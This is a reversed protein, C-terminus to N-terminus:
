DDLDSALLAGTVPHVYAEIRKGENDIAYIEYAGDEEKVQRVEYGQSTFKETIQVVTLWQDRPADVQLDDDSAFATGAAATILVFALTPINLLKRM